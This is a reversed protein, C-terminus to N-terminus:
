PRLPPAFEAAPAPHSRQQYFRDLGAKYRQLSAPSAWSAQAARYAPDAVAQALLADIKRIAQLGWETRPCAIGVPILAAGAIPLGALTQDRNHRNHYELNPEYDLTYDARGLALLKFLGENAPLNQLARINSGTKAAALVSDIAATYSRGAAVIGRLGPQRILRALEVEGKANLPAKAALDRRIILQLPLQMHTLTFYAFRQREPTPILNPRCLRTKNQLELISRATSMVVFRHQVQPWREIILRLYVDNQGITPKGERVIFNPPWDSLVWTMTEARLPGAALLPAIAALCLPRLIRPPRRPM